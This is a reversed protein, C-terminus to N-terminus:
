SVVILQSKGILLHNMKNYDLCPKRPLTLNRRFPNHIIYSM